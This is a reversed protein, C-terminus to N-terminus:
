VKGINATKISIKRVGLVYLSENKSPKKGVKTAEYTNKFIINRKM